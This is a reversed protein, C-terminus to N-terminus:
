ATVPLQDAGSCFAGGANRRAHRPLRLGAPRVRTRRARRKRPMVVAKGPAKCRDCRRRVQGRHMSTKSCKARFWQGCDPCDSEIVLLGIEAGFRTVYPQVGVCRYIQGKRRATAGIAPWRPRPPKTKIVPPGPPAPAIPRAKQALALCYARKLRDGQSTVAGLPPPCKTVGPMKIQDTKTM